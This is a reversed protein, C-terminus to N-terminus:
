AKLQYDFQQLLAERNPFYRYITRASVGALKAADPISFYQRTFQRPIWEYLNYM